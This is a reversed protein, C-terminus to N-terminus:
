ARTARLLQLTFRREDDTWARERQFGSRAALEELEAESYKYSNETHVAEGAEFRITADISV